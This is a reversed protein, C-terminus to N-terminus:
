KNEAIISDLMKIHKNFEIQNKLELIEDKTMQRDNEAIFESTIKFYFALLESKEMEALYTRAAKKQEEQGPVLELAVQEKKREKLENSIADEYKYIIKEKKCSAVSFSIIILIILVQKM